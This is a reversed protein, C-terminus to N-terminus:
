SVIERRDGSAPKCSNRKIWTQLQMMFVNCDGWLQDIHCTTVWYSKIELTRSKHGFCSADLFDHPINRLLLYDM